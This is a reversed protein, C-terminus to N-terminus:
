NVCIYEMKILDEIEKLGILRWFGNDTFWYPADPVGSCPPFNGMSHLKHNLCPCKYWTCLSCLCTLYHLASWGRHRDIVYATKKETICWTLVNEALCCSISLVRKTSVYDGFIWYEEWHSTLFLTKSPKQSTPREQSEWDKCALALLMCTLFSHGDCQLCGWDLCHCILHASSM